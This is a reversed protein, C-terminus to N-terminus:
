WVDSMKGQPPRSRNDVACTRVFQALEKMPADRFTLLDVNPHVHISPVGADLRLQPEADQPGHPGAAGLYGVTLETTVAVTLTETARASQLTCDNHSNLSNSTTAMGTDDSGKLAIDHMNGVRQVNYLLMKPPTAENNM